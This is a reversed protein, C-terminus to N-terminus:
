IAEPGRVWRDSAHFLPTISHGSCSFTDKVTSVQQEGGQVARQGGLWGSISRESSVCKWPPFAQWPASAEALVEATLQTGNQLATQWQNAKRPCPKQVTGPLAAELRGRPNNPALVMCIVSIILRIDFSRLLSLISGKWLLLASAKCNRLFLDTKLFTKCIPINSKVTKPFAVLQGEKDWNKYLNDRQRYVMRLVIENGRPKHLSPFCYFCSYWAKSRSEM